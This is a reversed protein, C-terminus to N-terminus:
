KIPDLPNADLWDAASEGGFEAAPNSIDSVNAPPADDPVDEIPTSAPTANQGSGVETPLKSKDVWRFVRAQGAATLITMEWGENTNDAPDAAAAKMGQLFDTIGGVVSTASVPESETRDSVDETGFLDAVTTDNPDADITEDSRRLSLRIKGLEAALMVKQVQDPKVLLSVNKARIPEGEDDVERHIQTNVAFVKVSKLITRTTTKKIGHKGGKLFVVVDVNDGPKLLNSVAIASDVAVSVVRYGPPIQLTADSYKDKEILKASLIPEGPFLRVLTKRDELEKFSRVAGPPIRDKPWEELSVLNPVMLTGLDIEAVAVFIKEMPAKDPRKQSDIVQSIGISAVLGCGLAIVILIMSKPRM